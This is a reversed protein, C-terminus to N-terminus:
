SNVSSAISEATLTLNTALVRDAHHFPPPPMPRGDVLAIASRIAFQVAAARSAFTGLNLLSELEGEKKQIVARAVFVNGVQVASPQVAVGHHYFLMHTVGHM